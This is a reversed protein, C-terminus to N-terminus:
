SSSCSSCSAERGAGCATEIVVSFWLSSLLSAGGSRGRGPKERASIPRWSTNGSLPPRSFYAAIDALWVVAMIALLALPGAQRLQVLALWTPLILLLGTLLGFVANSLPWRQRLWIPVALLWFAAAPLYLFAGLRWAAPQSFGTGLGVAAPEVASLLACLAVALVGLAIRAVAALRM